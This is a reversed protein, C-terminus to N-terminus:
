PRRAYYGIELMLIDSFMKSRWSELGSKGCTTSLVCDVSFTDKEHDQPNQPKPIMPLVSNLRFAFDSKVTVPNQKTVLDELASASIYEGRRM